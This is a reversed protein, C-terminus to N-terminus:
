WSTSCPPGVYQAIAPPPCGPQVIYCPRVTAHNVTKRYEDDISSSSRASTASRSPTAVPDPIAAAPAVFAFTTVAVTATGAFRRCFRTTADNM